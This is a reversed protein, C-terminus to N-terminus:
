DKLQDPIEPQYTGVWCASAANTFALFTLVGIIMQLIRRKM